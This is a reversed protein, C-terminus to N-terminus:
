LSSWTLSLLSLFSAWGASRMATGALLGPVGYPQSWALTWDADAVALRVEATEKFERAEARLSGFPPFISPDVPRGSAAIAQCVALATAYYVEETRLEQPYRLHLAATEAYTETGASPLDRLPHILPSFALLKGEVCYGLSAGKWLIYTFRRKGDGERAFRVWPRLLNELEKDFVEPDALTLFFVPAPFRPNWSVSCTEGLSKWLRAWAPAKALEVPSVLGLITDLHPRELEPLRLGGYLPAGKIRTYATKDGGGKVCSLWYPSAGNWSLRTEARFDRGKGSTSLSFTRAKDLSFAKALDWPGPALNQLLVSYSAFVQALDAHLVLDDPGSKWAAERGAWAKARAPLPASPVLGTFEKNQSCLITFEGDWVEFRFYAMLYVSDRVRGKEKVRQFPIGDTKLGTARGIGTLFLRQLVDAFEEPPARHRGRVVLEPIPILDSRPPYVCAELPTSLRELLRRLQLGFPGAPATAGLGAALNEAQLRSLAGSSEWPLPLRLYAMPERDVCAPLPAFDAARASMCIGGLLLHPLILVAALIRRGRPARPASM